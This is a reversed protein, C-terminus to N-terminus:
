NPPLPLPVVASTHWAGAGDRVLALRWASRCHQGCARGIVLTAREPEGMRVRPRTLEVIGGSGPNRALWGDWENAAERGLAEVDRVTVRTTPIDMSLREPDPVDVALTDGRTGAGPLLSLAPANLRDGSWLVLRTSREGEIFLSTLAARQIAASMADNVVAMSRIAVGARRSGPKEALPVPPARFLWLAIVAGALLLLTRM